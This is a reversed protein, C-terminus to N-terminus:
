KGEHDIILKRIKLWRLGNDAKLRDYYTLDM